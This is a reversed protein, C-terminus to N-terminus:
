FAAIWIEQSDVILVLPDEGAAARVSRDGLGSLEVPAYTMGDASWWAKPSGDSDSRAIVLENEGHVLVSQVSYGSGGALEARRWGPAEDLWLAAESTAAYSTTGGVIAHGDRAALMRIVMAALDAPITEEIWEFGDSSRYVHNVPAECTDVCEHGIAVLGPQAAVKHSTPTTGSTWSSGDVTAWAINSVFMEFAYDAGLFVTRDPLVVVSEFVISAPAGITFPDWREGDTSHWAARLLPSEADVTSGLAILGFPTQAVEMIRRGEAEPLAVESWSRGDPSRLLVASECSAEPNLRCGGALFGGDFSAIANLDAADVRFVPEFSASAAM